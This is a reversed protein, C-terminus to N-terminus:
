RPAIIAVTRDDTPSAPDDVESSEPGTSWMRRAQDREEDTLRVFARPSQLELERLRDPTVFAVHVSGGPAGLKPRGCVAMMQEIEARRKALITSM